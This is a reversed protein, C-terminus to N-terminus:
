KTEAPASTTPGDGEYRNASASSGRVVLVRNRNADLDARVKTVVPRFVALFADLEGKGSGPRNPDRPIAISAYGWRPRYSRLVNDITMHLFRVLHSDTEREPNFLWYAYVSELEGAVRGDAGHVPRSIELVRVPFTEGPGIKAQYTYEDTIRNGQGVLCVQPRHISRREMGSFVVTATIDPHGPRVYLRRFLPTNEPLLTQEGVSIVSLPSGCFPCADASVPGSLDNTPAAHFAARGGARELMKEDLGFALDARSGGALLDRELYSRGCQDSTCFLMNEGHWSGLEDPLVLPVAGTPDGSITRPSALLLLAGALLLLCAVGPLAKKVRAQM